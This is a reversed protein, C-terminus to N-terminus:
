MRMSLAILAIRPFRWWPERFECSGIFLLSWYFYIWYTMDCFLALVISCFLQAFTTYFARLFGSFQWNLMLINERALVSSTIKLSSKIVEVKLLCKLNNKTFEGCYYVEKWSVNREKRSAKLCLNNHKTKGKIVVVRGFHFIVWEYLPFLLKRKRNDTPWPWCKILM